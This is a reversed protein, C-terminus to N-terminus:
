DRLIKMKPYPFSDPMRRDPKISILQETIIMGVSEGQSRQDYYAILDNSVEGQANSKSTAMPPMVLRNKVLLSNIQLPETIKPM